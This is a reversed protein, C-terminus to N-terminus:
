EDPTISNGWSSYFFYMLCVQTPVRSSSLPKDTSWALSHASGCGVRGIKKGQVYCYAFIIDFLLYFYEFSFYWMICIIIIFTQVHYINYWIIFIWRVTQRVDLMTVVICLKFVSRCHWFLVPSLYLLCLEMVSSVKMMIAGLTYREKIVVLSATFPDKFFFM